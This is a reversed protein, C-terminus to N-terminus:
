IKEYYLREKKSMARASIVRIKKNRNTFVVMLKKKKDSIGYAICRMEYQSHKNDEISVGGRLLPPNKQVRVLALYKLLKLPM